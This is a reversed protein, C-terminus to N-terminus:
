LSWQSVAEVALDGQPVVTGTFSEPNSWAVGLVSLLAHHATAGPNGGRVVIDAGHQEAIFGGQPGPTLSALPQRLGSLDEAVYTPREAPTARLLAEHKSVGTLVHLCPMGAAVGGAIDTNLRDGVALPATSGLSQAALFFMTPEPKGASSPSVGTANVVAAVMSGNGVLFGREAPLTSDLNSAFYLAGRQIALAAESLQAWGTEPNHGQVVAQPNDDASAVVRLGAAAALDKFSQAGVVLVSAGPGVANIILDVAAQASTLVQEADTPIGMDSLMAAVSGPGRSANNTIYRVPIPSSNIIEAAPGILRGGEWVTGDLDFLLSDFVDLAHSSM